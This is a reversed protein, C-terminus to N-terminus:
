YVENMDKMEASTPKIILVPCHCHHACYDSVSGLLARSLHNMGRNGLILTAANVKEVKDVIAEKTPGILSVSKFDINKVLLAKSFRSLLVSSEGFPDAFVLGETASLTAIHQRQVHLLIVLDDQRIYNELAWHFAHNAFKSDDVAIAVKRKPSTLSTVSERVLTEITM